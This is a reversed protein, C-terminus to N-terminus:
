QNIKSSQHSESTEATGPSNSRYSSELNKRYSEIEERWIDLMSNPLVIRGTLEKNKDELIIFAQDTSRGIRGHAFADRIRKMLIDFTFDNTPSQLFGKTKDCVLTNDSLKLNVIDTLKNNLFRSCIFDAKGAKAVSLLRNLLDDKAKTDLSDSLGYSLPSDNKSAMNYLYFEFLACAIEPEWLKFPITYKSDNKITDKPNSFTINKSM